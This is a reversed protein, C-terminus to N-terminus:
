QKVLNFVYTGNTSNTGAAVGGSAVFNVTLTFTGASANFASVVFTNSSNGDIFIQNINTGNFAWSGTAKFVPDGDTTSYTKSSATGRLTLTFNDFGTAAAGNFTISTAEYTVGTTGVLDLLRQEEATLTPTDDGGGGGGGCSSLTLAFFAIFVFSFHKIRLM